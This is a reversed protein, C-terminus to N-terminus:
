LRLTKDQSSILLDNNFLKLEISSTPDAIGVFAYRKHEGTKSRTAKIETSIVIGALRIIDNDQIDSNKSIDKVANKLAKRTRDNRTLKLFVNGLLDFM